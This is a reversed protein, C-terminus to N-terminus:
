HEYESKRGAAFSNRLSSNPEDRGFWNIATAYHSKYKDGHAALYSSMREIMIKVAPETYREVLKIYEEPALKM